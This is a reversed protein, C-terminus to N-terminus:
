QERRTSYAARRNASFRFGAIANAIPSLLDSFIGARYQQGDMIRDTYTQLEKDM